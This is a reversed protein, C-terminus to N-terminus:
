KNNEELAAAIRELADAKRLEAEVIMAETENRLYEYHKAKPAIGGDQPAPTLIHAYKDMLKKM